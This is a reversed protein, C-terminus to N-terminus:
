SPFLRSIISPVANEVRLIRPGLHVAKFGIAVLKDIEYPIFGGEPGIALTTKDFTNVPCNEETDPHAVLSSTGKILSPLEDEVFPKFLKRLHVEPLLTDRSQELGLVLQEEIADPTLFPSQWFSKEVRSSNILYLKKVGMAAITQLTRRLMKPRPLALLLTLPLPPPPNQTLDLMLTAQENDLKVITGTGMLGNIHGVKVSDGLEAKHVDLLHRLQRDRVNYANDTIKSTLLLMNM